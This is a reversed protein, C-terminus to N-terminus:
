PSLRQKIAALEDELASVRAELEAFASPRRPPATPTPEEAPVSDIEGAFLHTYQHDRRGPTRALRAVVGGGEREADMLGDLTRAVAENDEFAHLRGSRQRLEGPTQPGRLMLLCVVAYEAEDFQQDSFPTNCFRQGYKVVGTKFNEEGTVLGQQELERATRQVAVRDLALM